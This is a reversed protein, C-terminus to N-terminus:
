PAEATRGTQARVPEGASVFGQGVTIIRAPDPLGTVWVGDAATRVVAVPHFAVREDPDVTKVGVRGADDLSIVAPSVKHAAVKDTPIEVGASLGSPLAGDPNPVEVEVRFTRTGPEAVASVFRVEGEAGRGDLFRIRGPQGARVRAIQHQAVQVVAVLPDNDVIEAVPDGRSVFDGREALRQNVVGAVPATIRTNRIDLEVAELEARAAELEAEAAELETRSVHGARHLRQVAEFDNERGRVRAVAQRRKAERDDMRLRALEDGASVVAGRERYWEAVQGATEARVRVRVDPEVRGQLVLLHEVPQASQETVTVATPRPEREPAPRPPERTLVGSTIWAVVVLVVGIVAVPHRYRRVSQSLATRNM